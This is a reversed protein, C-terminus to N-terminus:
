PTRPLSPRVNSTRPASLLFCYSGFSFCNRREPPFFESTYNLQFLAGPFKSRLRASPRNLNTIGRPEYFVGATFSFKLPNPRTIVLLPPAYAGGGAFGRVCQDLMTVSSIIYARVWETM